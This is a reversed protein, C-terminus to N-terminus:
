QSAPTGPPRVSYIRGAGDVVELVLVDRYATLRREVDAWEAPEYGDTHVVLYNVGLRLLNAVGEDDPFERLQGYLEDHLPARIGSHGHVTKQWHVMSHLMYTTHWRDNARVPIEAISFPKPRDALWRDIHPIEVQYPKGTFPMTAFELVLFVAAAAAAVRAARVARGRLLADFGVSALVALGLTALIIFRSPVRIFNLVPMWYVHPWLSLPPGAALLVSLITIVLYPWVVRARVRGALVLGACGLVIPLYGPFMFATATDNVPMGALWSNVRAPLHAPSALFSEPAAAWNQLGRRLGMEEQVIRYPVAVAAVPLLLLAGRWGADRAARVILMPDRSVILQHVGVIGMALVLYVAGHGTALVQLSFFALAIWLDRPRTTAFYTHLYALAFPIWQVTTLHIQGYRYFRSPSFAFIMGCLIAAPTSAGLRRALLYAGLGCLVVSSLAVANLALVPNGTLWLVPAAFPISGLLNESYALTNTQPFYINANFVDWPKTVLAHTGWALTWMFLDTDADGPVVFSGPNFSLPYTFAATLVVFLGALSLQRM